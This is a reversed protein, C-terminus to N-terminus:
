HMFEEIAMQHYHEPLTEALAEDCFNKCATWEGDWEPQEPHRCCTFVIRGKNDTPRYRLCEGCKKGITCGGSEMYMYSIRAAM